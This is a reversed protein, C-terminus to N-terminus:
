VPSGYFATLEDHVDLVSVLPFADAGFRQRICDLVDAATLGDPHADRTEPEAMVARVADLLTM